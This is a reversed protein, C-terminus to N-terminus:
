SALRMASGRAPVVEGVLVGGKVGDILAAGITNELAAPQATRVRCFNPTLGLAHGEEDAEEWLIPQTSGVMQERFRRGSERGIELLVRVRVDRVGPAVQGDMRAAATGKRISYPFAHIAAFGVGRCLEATEEFERDTEGPFGAIVDTTISAGPVGRRIMEITVRYQGPDYRRRMRALVSASGSQLPVHFHPCLRRDAWLEVLPQSFDQPQLSSLRIRPISTSKLMAELIRRPGVEWGMDRGYHGLQTGTLVIERAGAAEHMRAEDVLEEIPRSKERGRVRPVICFACVDNCGDQIKIFARTRLGRLGSREGAAEPAAPEGTRWRFVLDVLQDKGQNGILLDAEHLELGSGASDVYCGALVVTAEPSLRRARRVLQRAKRDAVHTVTCSNVVVVDAGAPDHGVACGVEAFRRAIADSDAQNLRCGLTLVAVNRLPKAAVAM